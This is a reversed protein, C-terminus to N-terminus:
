HEALRALLAAKAQPWEEQLMSYCVTDRVSGDKRLKHRRLVGDKQAGLREIARQSATNLIDTEWAVSRCGLTEFAHSMLMLKCCSNIRTRQVPKAYWTYGIKLRPIDLEIDYFATCGVTKGSIEDIVAFATRTALATQIYASVQDPAPATTVALTWLEGDCVAERLGGEHAMTLPELRVQNFSLTPICTFGTM